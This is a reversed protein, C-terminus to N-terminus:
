AGPERPATDDATAQQRQAESESTAPPPAEPRKGCGLLIGALVAPVLAFTWSRTM